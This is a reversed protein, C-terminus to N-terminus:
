PLCDRLIEELDALHGEVDAVADVQSMGSRESLMNGAEPYFREAAMELHNVARRMYWTVRDRYGSTQMQDFDTLVVQEALRGAALIDRLYLLDKGAKVERDRGGRLNFTNAKNLTFAGLTPLCLTTSQGEPASEPVVLNETFAALVWLHDLSLAQIGPQEEVPAPTGRSQAPGRHQQLFEITEGQGEERAWIVGTEGLPRFGAEELVNRIPRRNGPSLRQPLVLDAETTLSTQGGRGEPRGYTLHLYPVWGGVLILDDTYDALTRIIAWLADERQADSM